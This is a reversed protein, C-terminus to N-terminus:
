SVWFKASTVSEVADNNELRFIFSGSLGGDGNRIIEAGGLDAVYNIFSPDDTEISYGATVKGGLDYPQILHRGSEVDTDVAFDIFHISSGKNMTAIVVKVGEYSFVTVPGEFLEGDVLAELHGDCQATTIGRRVREIADKVCERNNM